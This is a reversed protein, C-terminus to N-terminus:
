SNKEFKLLMEGSYRILGFDGIQFREYDNEDCFLTMQNGNVEFVLNYEYTVIRKPVHIVKRIENKDVITGEVIEPMSSFRSLWRYGIIGGVLLMLGLIVIGDM